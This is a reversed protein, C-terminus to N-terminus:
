LVGGQGPRRGDGWEWHEWGAWSCTFFIQSNVAETELWNQIQTYGLWLLAPTARSSCGGGLWAWMLQPCCHLPSPIAVAHLSLTCPRFTKINSPHSSSRGVQTYTPPPQSSPCLCGQLVLWQEWVGKGLIWPRGTGDGSTLVSLRM